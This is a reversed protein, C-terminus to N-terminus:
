DPVVARCVWTATLMAQESSQGGGVAAAQAVPQKWDAHNPLSTNTVAKLSLLRVRLMEVCEASLLM